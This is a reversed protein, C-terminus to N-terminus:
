RRQHPDNGQVHGIRDIIPANKQLDIKFLIAVQHLQDDIVKSFAYLRYGLPYPLYSPQSREEPDDAIYRLADVVSAFIPGAESRIRALDQFAAETLKFSM